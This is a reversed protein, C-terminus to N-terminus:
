SETGLVHFTSVLYKTFQNSPSTTFSTLEGHFLKTPFLCYLIGNHVNAKLVTKQLLVM